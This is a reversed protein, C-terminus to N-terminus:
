KWRSCKMTIYTGVFAGFAAPIILIPNYVYEITVFSGAVIICASVLSAKFKKDQATAQVYLTWLADACAVALFVLITKWLVSGRWKFYASPPIQVWVTKEVM